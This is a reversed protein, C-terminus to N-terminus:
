RCRIEDRISVFDIFLMITHAATDIRLSGDDLETIKRNIRIADERSITFQVIGEKILGLSKIFNYLSLTRITYVTTSHHQIGNDDIYSGMDVSKNFGLKEM